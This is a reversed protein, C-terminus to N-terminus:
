FLRSDLVEEVEYEEEGEIELPPPPPSLQGKMQPPTYPRLRSINVVNHIPISEPLDLKIANPNIIELIIFPGVQEDSLKKNPRKIQLYKTELWVKDGVKFRPAEARRRDAFKKMEERAKQLAVQAEKCVKRMKEVFTMAEESRSELKPEVGM